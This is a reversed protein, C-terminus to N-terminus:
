FALFTSFAQLLKSFKLKLNCQVSPFHLCHSQSFTPLPFAGSDALERPLRHQKLTPVQFPYKLACSGGQQHGFLVHDQSGCSISDMRPMAQFAPLLSMLFVGTKLSSLVHDPHFCFIDCFDKQPKVPHYKPYQPTPTWHLESHICKRRSDM